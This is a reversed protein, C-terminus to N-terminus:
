VKENKNEEAQKEAIKRQEEANFMEDYMLDQIFLVTDKAKILAMFYMAENNDVSRLPILEDNFAPATLAKELVRIQRKPSLKNGFHEATAWDRALEEYLEDKSVEVKKNRVGLQGPEMIVGQEKLSRNAKPKTREFNIKTKAMM